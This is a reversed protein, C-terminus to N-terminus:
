KFGILNVISPDDTDITIGDIINIGSYNTITVIQNLLLDIPQSAIGGAVDNGTIRATGQIVSISLATLGFSSDITLSGDGNITYTWIKQNAM